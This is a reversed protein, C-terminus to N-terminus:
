SASYENLKGKIYERVLNATAKGIAREVDKNWEIEGAGEIQIDKLMERIIDPINQSEIEVNLASAVHRLREAVVWESAVAEANKLIELKELNVPRPTSTERFNEKKYKAILREGNNRTLEILPRIIIGESPHGEGMGNRIAQVSDRDRERNLVELDTSTKVYHVFELDFSKVIEEAEPVSLWKDGIKVDFAIFRLNPGYTKSMGQVKGGYVEGYIIIPLNYYMEAFRNLLKDKDFLAEFTEQNACGSFFRLKNGDFSIHCSSNHVVIGSAIFNHNKKVILDYKDYHNNIRKNSVIRKKAM